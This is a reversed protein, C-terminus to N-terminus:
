DAVMAQGAQATLARRAIRTVYVLMAVCALLGFVNVVMQLTSHESVKGTLRAAHKAMYSALTRFALRPGLPYRTFLSRSAPM